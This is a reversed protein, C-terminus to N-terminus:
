LDIGRPVVFDTLLWSRPLATAVPWTNKSVLVAIASTPFKETAEATLEDAAGLREILHAFGPNHGVLILTTVEDPEKDVIAVLQPASAEYIRSETRQECVSWRSSLASTALTWTQQARVASSVLVRPRSQEEWDIRADLWAGIAPADRQGRPSLPRDHDAVDPPYDSKAHRILILRHSSDM